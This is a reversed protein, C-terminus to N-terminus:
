QCPKAPPIRNRLEDLSKRIEKINSDDEIARAKIAAAIPDTYEKVINHIRTDLSGNLHQIIEYKTEDAKQVAYTASRAAVQANVTAEHTGERTIKTNEDLKTSNENLKSMKEKDRLYSLVMQAVQVVIMGVAGIVLVWGNADLDALLM